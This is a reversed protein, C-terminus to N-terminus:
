WGRADLVELVGVHPREEAVALHVLDLAAALQLDGRVLAEVVQREDDVAVELAEVARDAAVALDDLLELAEEAAGAPVDDLDDPAAAPVLQERLVGVAREHVEHVRRGVAVELGVAGLAASEDAIVEEPAVLAGRRQDLVPRIVVDPALEAAAAEVVALHVGGVLRGGLVLALGGDDERLGDLAVAETVVELAAVRGVLHLLHRELIELVEAVRHADRDRVGLEFLVRVERRVVVGAPLVLRDLVHELAAARRPPKRGSRRVWWTPSCSGPSSAYASGFFPEPVCSIAVVM